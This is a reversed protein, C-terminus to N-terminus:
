QQLLRFLAKTDKQTAQSIPLRIVSNYVRLIYTSPADLLDQKFFITNLLMNYYNNFDENKASQINKMKLVIVILDFKVFKGSGKQGLSSISKTM